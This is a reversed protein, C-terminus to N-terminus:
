SDLWKSTEKFEKWKWENGKRKKGVYHQVRM